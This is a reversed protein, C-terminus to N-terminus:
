KGDLRVREMKEVRMMGRPALRRKDRLTDPTISDNANGETAENNGTKAKAEVKHFRILQIGDIFMLKHTNTEDKGKSLYIFGTIGKIDAEDNAPIRLQAMGSFSVHTQSVAVSDGKYTVAVYAVANKTGSQYIFNSMFKLLFSDGRHYTTDAVFTFDIRNYPPTPVLVAATADRWVNATDGNASLNAYEGQGVSAGLQKAKDGIRESLNKYIKAFQDAHTYYYVLSSDYEAEGVGHKKLTATYYLTRDYGYNDGRSAMAKSVYFDYLIEEMDDPQIYEKPVTPKCAAVATAMAALLLAKIAKRRQCRM